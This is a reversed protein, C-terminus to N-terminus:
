LIGQGELAKVGAGVVLKIYDLTKETDELIGMESVTNYLENIRKKNALVVNLDPMLQVYYDMFDIFHKTPADINVTEQPMFLSKSEEAHLFESPVELPKNINVIRGYYNEHSKLENVACRFFTKVFNSYDM